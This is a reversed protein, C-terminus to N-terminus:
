GRGPDMWQVFESHAFALGIAQQRDDIEPRVAEPQLDPADFAVLDVLEVRPALRQAEARADVLLAAERPRRHLSRQRAEGPKALPERPKMRRGHPDDGRVREADRLVRLLEDRQRLARQAQRDVHDASVLFPPEREEADRM